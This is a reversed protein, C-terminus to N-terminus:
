YEERRPEKNLWKIQFSEYISNILEKNRKICEAYAGEKDDFFVDEEIFKKCCGAGFLAYEKPTDINKEEVYNLGINIREHGFDKYNTKKRIIYVM